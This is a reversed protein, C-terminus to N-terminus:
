DHDAYISERSFASAPPAPLHALGNALEDLLREQTELSVAHPEASRIVQEIVSQLYHELPLGAARAQDAARTEVDPDLELTISM